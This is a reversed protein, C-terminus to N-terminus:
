ALVWRGRYTGPRGGAGQHDRCSRGGESPSPPPADGQEGPSRTWSATSGHSYLVVERRDNKVPRYVYAVLRVTGDDEADHLERGAEIREFTYRPPVGV